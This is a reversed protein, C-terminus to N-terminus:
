WQCGYMHGEVGSDTGWGVAQAVPMAYVESIRYLEWCARSCAWLTWLHIAIFVRDHVLM